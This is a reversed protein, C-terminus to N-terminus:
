SKFGIRAHTGDCFPKTSSGGCRCLRANQARTVTRGTGACIEVNGMVQLPGDTLPDISLTGARFELPDSEIKDPEGTAKFGAKIHSNDCFPKNKSQGCRCLTARTMTDGSMAIDAAVAYPGNERVRVVNAEPPAEQPGGDHRDYTIAGSPCNHAVRVIHEVSAAEPHIWAGPTNARFVSPAELVCHRSHVCRKTNFRVTIDKTSAVNPDGPADAPAESARPPAKVRATQDVSLSIHAEFRDHLDDFRSALAALRAGVGGLPVERELAAAAQGLERTRESLIQGACSQVLQGASRPLSFTVGATTKGDGAALMTAAEGVMQLLYMLETSGVALGARLENPLPAPSFVQALVRMMLAYIANGLDVTKAATPNTIRTLDPRPADSLTPNEAAPRAPEFAPRAEKLQVYERKVQAFRAYHSTESHAPAGEGQTVIEELARYASKLDSVKFLGPLGFEAGCVQAQDHGVFVKDEGWQEVLRALGREIGHYLHGQSAYDQPTPSLLDPRAARQYRNAHDFGAGDAIHDTEPREIYLFHDLAAGSFPSLRMVVDAPFHGPRVPFEPKWLHPAAGLSALINNVLALHLMEERAVQRFQARWRDIAALEDSTVGEGEARKLSWMAYLYTCMVAHEFEAAECLLFILEERDQVVIDATM